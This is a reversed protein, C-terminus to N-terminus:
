RNLDGLPRARRQPPVHVNAPSGQQHRCGHGFASLLGSCYVFVPRIRRPSSLLAADAIDLKRATFRVMHNHTPQLNNYSGPQTQHAAAAGLAGEYGQQNLGNVANWIDPSNSTGESVSLSINAGSRCCCRLCRRRKLTAEYPLWAPRREEILAM